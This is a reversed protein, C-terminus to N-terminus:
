LTMGVAFLKPTPKSWTPAARAVIVAWPTGVAWAVVCSRWSNTSSELSVLSECDTMAVKPLLKASRVFSPMLKASTICPTRSEIGSASNRLSNEDTSAWPAASSVVPSASSRKLFASSSVLSAAPAVSAAKLVIDSVADNLISLASAATLSAISSRPVAMRGATAVTMSDTRTGATCSSESPRFETESHTVSLRLRRSPTLVAKAPMPSATPSRRSCSPCSASGLRCNGPSSPSCTDTQCASPCPIFAASVAVTANTSYKRPPMSAITVPTVQSSVLQSVSDVVTCSATMATAPNIVALSIGTKMPRPAATTLARAPTRSAIPGTPQIARATAAATAPM